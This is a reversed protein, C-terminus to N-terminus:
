DEEEYLEIEVDDSIVMTGAEIFVEDTRLAALAEAITEVPVVKIAAAASNFTEMGSTKGLVDLFAASIIPIRLFDKDSDTLAM